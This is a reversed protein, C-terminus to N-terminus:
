PLMGQVVRVRRALDEHTTITAGPFSDGIADGVAAARRPDVEFLLVGRTLVRGALTALLARYADMGDRGGDLALHPEFERVDADAASLEDTTVYPPNSVVLDVADNIPEAWDGRVFDVRDGVGNTEANDRAVALGDDSIDTAVVAVAPLEAALTVAICGSGTGLDAVRAAEGTTRLRELAVAVLTETEPRPVLVARTVTFPRGYFERTGTIYAVPEGTGRRRILERAAALEPEALPRDHLLYLDIRRVCLAHALLLEADLRPSTSGRQQLYDTSLRLVELVSRGAAARGAPAAGTVRGPQP